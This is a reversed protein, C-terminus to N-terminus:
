KNRIVMDPNIALLEFKARDNTDYGGAFCWSLKVASPPQSDHYIYGLSRNPLFYAKYM